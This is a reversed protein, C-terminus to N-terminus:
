ARQELAWFMIFYGFGICGAIITLPMAPNSSKRTRMIGAVIFPMVGIWINIVLMGFEKRQFIPDSSALSVKGILTFVLTSAVVLTALLNKDPVLFLTLLNLFFCLYLMISWVADLGSGLALLSLAEDFNINEM